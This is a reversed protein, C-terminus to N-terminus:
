NTDHRRKPTFNMGFKTAVQELIHQVKPITIPKQLLTDMEANFAKEDVKPGAAEGSIGVVFYKPKTRKDRELSRIDITTKYGNYPMYLDTLVLHYMLGQDLKQRVMHVAELGGEAGETTVGEFAELSDCVHRVQDPIDDVVLVTLQQMFNLNTYDEVWERKARSECSEKVLEPLSDILEQSIVLLERKPHKM